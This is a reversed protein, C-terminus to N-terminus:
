EASFVSPNTLKGESEYSGFYNTRVRIAGCYWLAFRGPLLWSSDSLEQLNRFKVFSKIM